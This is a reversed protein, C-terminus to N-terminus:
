GASAERSSGGVLRERYRRLHDLTSRASAEAAELEARSLDDGREDLRRRLSQIRERLHDAARCLQAAEDYRREEDRM